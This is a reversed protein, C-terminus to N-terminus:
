AQKEMEKERERNEDEGEKMGNRKDPKVCCLPASM